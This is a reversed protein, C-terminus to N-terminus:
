IKIGAMSRLVRSARAKPEEKRLLQRSVYSDTSSHARFHDSWETSAMLLGYGTGAIDACTDSTLIQRIRDRNIVVNEAQKTGMDDSVPLYRKLYADRQRPGVKWLALQEAFEVWKSSEGRAAAIGRGVEALRQEWSSTHRITFGVSRGDTMEALNLTNACQVRVNTPIGRLGGNGDHRSSLALYRYTASPDFSMELPRDFYCVAVIQKGDYLSMLAEFNVPDDDDERGLAADIVSGFEENPIVRYSSPQIALVRGAQAMDRDDRTIAQWGDIADPEMRDDMAYVPESEVEWDLGAEKRAEDWTRPSNQLVSRELGHWSPKRVMFGTEWQHAM